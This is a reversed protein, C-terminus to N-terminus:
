AKSPSVRGTWRLKNHDSSAMIQQVAGEDISGSRLVVLSLIGENSLAPLLMGRRPTSQTSSSSPPRSLPDIKISLDLSNYAFEILFDLEGERGFIETSQNNVDSNDARAMSNTRRLTSFLNVTSSANNTQQLAESQLRKMTTSSSSKIGGGAQMPHYIIPVLQAFGKAKIEGISSLICDIALAFMTIAYSRDQQSRKLWSVPASISRRVWSQMSTDERHALWVAIDIPKASPSGLGLM